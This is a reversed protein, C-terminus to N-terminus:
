RAANDQLTRVLNRLLNGGTNTTKMEEEMLRLKRFQMKTIMNLSKFNQDAHKCHIVSRYKM